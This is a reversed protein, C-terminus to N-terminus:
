SFSGNPIVGEKSFNAVRFDGSSIMLALNFLLGVSFCSGPFMVLLPRWFILRNAILM